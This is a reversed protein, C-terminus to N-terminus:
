PQRKIKQISSLMKEIIVGTQPILYSIIIRAKQLRSVVYFKRYCRRCIVEFIFMLGIGKSNLNKYEILENCFPCKVRLDYNSNSTLQYKAPVSYKCYKLIYLSIKRKLDEIDKDSMKETINIYQGLRNRVFLVENKVLGKEICHEYLKSRPYPIVFDLRVQGQANKVWWDLTEKATENTEAIDGFIFTAAVTIKQKVTEHFAFDIQNPTIAKRMSRLVIPSFSEFGYSILACGADKLLKLLERDVVTVMTQCFWQINKKKVNMLLKIESCFRKIREKQLSLCEDYIIIYNIDYRDIALSIESIINEISRKRYTSDHYCFTCQFPCGRSALLPYVRPKDLITTWLLFNSHVNDLHKRFELGEYDPFPLSDLNEVPDRKKTVAVQNGEKFIIGKVNKLSRNQAISEVLEVITEEGEGVVGYDVGFEEFTPVPMTSLIPGGLIIKPKTSHKKVTEIIEKLGFFCLANGGTCVLDYREKNLKSALIDSIRGSYHNLNLGEVNHNAKKLSAFIYSLGVPFMYDFNEILENSYRPVAILIRM